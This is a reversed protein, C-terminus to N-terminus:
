SRSCSLRCSCAGCATPTRWARWGSRWARCGSGAGPLSVEWSRAISCSSCWPGRGSSSCGTRTSGSSKSRCWCGSGARRRAARLLIGFFASLCGLTVIEPRPDFRSSALLVGPIWGAACSGCRGAANRLGLGVIVAGTAGAAALLITGAVGGAAFALALGVQFLWHLDIWPQGASGFTFPDVQPVARHELFWRGARLHWWVDADFLEQCGLLFTLGALGFILSGDALHGAVTQKSPNGM